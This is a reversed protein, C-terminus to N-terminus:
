LLTKSHHIVYHAIDIIEEDLEGFFNKFFELADIGKNNLVNAMTGRTYDAVFEPSSYGVVNIGDEENETSAFMWQYEDNDFNKSLSDTVPKFRKMHNRRYDNAVKIEANEIFRRREEDTMKM